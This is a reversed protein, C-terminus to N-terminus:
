YGCDHEGMDVPDGKLPIFVQQDCIGAMEFDTELGDVFEEMERTTKYMAPDEERFGFGFMDAVEMCPIGVHELEDGEFGYEQYEPLTDKTRELVALTIARFTCPDGDNFVPIYCLVIYGLLEKPLELESAKEQVMDTIFKLGDEKLASM